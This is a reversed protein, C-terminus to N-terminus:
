LLAFNADPQHAQRFRGATVAAMTLESATERRESPSWSIYQWITAPADRRQVSVGAIHATNASLNL